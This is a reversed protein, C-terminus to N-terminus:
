KIIIIIIIIIIITTIMKEVTMTARESVKKTNEVTEKKITGLVRVVVSIVETKM